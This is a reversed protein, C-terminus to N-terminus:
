LHPIHTEGTIAKSIFLICFYHYPSDVTNEMHKAWSYANIQIQKVYRLEVM